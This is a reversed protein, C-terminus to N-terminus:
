NGSLPRSAYGRSPSTVFRSLRPRLLWPQRTGLIPVATPAIPTALWDAPRFTVFSQSGRFIPWASIAIAHTLHPASRTTIDRLGNNQPFFRAFAGCFGGPYLDLCASFSECLYRRSSGVGLLPKCCGAFVRQGLCRGYAALPNLIPAHALVLSSPPTIGASTTSSMVVRSTVGQAHLPARPVQCSWAYSSVSGAQVSSRGHFCVISHLPTYPCANLNGM